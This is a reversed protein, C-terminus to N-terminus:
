TLDITLGLRAMTGAPAAVAMKYGIVVNTADASVVRVMAEDWVSSDPSSSLWDVRITWIPPVYLMGHPMTITSYITHDILFQDSRINTKCGGVVSGYSRIDLRDTPQAIQGSVPVQAGSNFISLNIRNNSGSAYDFGKACNRINGRIDNDAGNLKLGTKGTGTFNKVNMNITNGTGNIVVGDNNPNNTTLIGNIIANSGNVILGTRGVSASWVMGNLHGISCNDGNIVIGDQQGGINYARFKGIQMENAHIICNDGDVVLNDIRAISGLYAGTDLAPSASRGGAYTHLLGIRDFSGGYLGSEESYFNWGDNFGCIISDASNNHPGRCHWGAFGGCERVIVNGFKGEEQALWSSATASTTDETYIGNAGSYFLVTGQLIQAPGYLKMIFGSTNGTPNNTAHYRNGNVRIDKLGMWSPVRPDTVNLGSGTLVDFNESKIFDRNAGAIQRLETANVGRGDLQIRRDLRIELAQYVGGPGFTLRGGGLAGLVVRAAEFAVTWDWTGSDSPIPRITVLHSFEWIDVQTLSLQREVTQGVLSALQSRTHGIAHTGQPSLLTQRLTIDEAQILKSQDTAWTSTIFPLATRLPRYNVDLYRVIQTPREILLDPAYPVEPEFAMADLYGLYDQTRKEKEDTYLGDIQDWVHDYRANVIIRMQTGDAYVEPSSLTFKKMSDITFAYEIAGEIWLAMGATTVAADGSIVGVDYQMQGAVFTFPYTANVKLLARAADITSKAQQTLSDNSAALGTVSDALQEYSM